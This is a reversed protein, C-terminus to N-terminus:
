PVVIIEGIYATAIILSVVAWRRRQNGPRTAWVVYFGLCAVSLLLELWGGLGGFRPGLGLEIASHPWLQMDPKHSLLDLFWHSMVAASMVTAVRLGSKLFLAGFLLSWSVAMLLSHSWPTNFHNFGGGELGAAVFVGFALDLFGVGLMLGLTPSKPEIVKLALGAAFHGPFM